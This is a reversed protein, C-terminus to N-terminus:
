EVLRERRGVEEARVLREEGVPAQEDGAARLIVPERAQRVAVEEVGRRFLPDADLVHRFPAPVRRADREAVAADKDHRAPRFAVGRFYTAVPLRCSARMCTFATM